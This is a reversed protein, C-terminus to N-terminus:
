LVSVVTLIKTLQDEIEVNPELWNIKTGNKEMRRFWTMQRKAFQHIAINLKEHMNAFDITGELYLSIYKYELGYFQLTEHKVGEKSLREVEEIMGNNLRYTLRDTIRKRVVERDPNIGFIVNPIIPPKVIKDSNELYYTEIELARTIRDRDITDTTNHTKRMSNLRLVLEDVNETELENRLKENKPVFILPYSKVISEIYLGTGGCLIPFKDSQIIKDYSKYFGQQFDFVSYEYGPNVIDILHHVIQTNKITYEDLDKGTGIDMGRYVQRSDASIIEGNILHALNVALKTKGCATPGLITIM